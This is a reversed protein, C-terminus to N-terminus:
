LPYFGRQIVNEAASQLFHQQKEKTFFRGYVEVYACGGNVKQLVAEATTNKRVDQPHIV